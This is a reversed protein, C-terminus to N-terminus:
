QLKLNSLNCLTLRLSIFLYIDFVPPFFRFIRLSIYVVTLKDVVFGMHVPMPDYGPRWHSLIFSSFFLSHISIAYTLV